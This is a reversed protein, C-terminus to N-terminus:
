VAFFVGFSLLFLVVVVMSLKRGTIGRWQQVLLLGGYLLWVVVAAIFHSWGGRHPMMFGAVIGVTLLGFGIWLLRKVSALLERVPPLDRFLGSRLHHEKLQHDLVLFMVGTVAALAFAGYALVSVAAHAERWADVGAVREPSQTMVGPWLALVQFVVVVPATFLGVLSLRYSRGVILYFLTLAWALFVLIEGLDRLPCAGRAEGRLDLFVLQAAFAGAILGLTWRTRLGRHVTVAGWVAGALALLTSILLVTRDMVLWVHVAIM